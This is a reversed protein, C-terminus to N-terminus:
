RLSLDTAYQVLGLKGAVAQSALNDWSTSYLPIRGSARIARAWAATVAPGYGRGRYGELTELGAEAARDTLRACFCVSVVAGDAFVAVYPERAAFQEAEANVNWGMRGLLHLDAYALRTTEVTPTPIEDPFRYAPGVYSSRAGGLAEGMAAFQRPEARLDDDVPESAALEGLRRAVDEPLDDRVRWLNGERTRGFFFRPARDGGPENAFGIRGGADHTFLADIQVDLLERDSIILGAM